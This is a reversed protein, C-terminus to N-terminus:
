SRNILVLVFGLLTLAISSPYLGWLKGRLPIITNNNDLDYSFRIESFEVGLHLQYKKSFYFLLDNIFFYFECLIVIPFIYLDAEASMKRLITNPDM